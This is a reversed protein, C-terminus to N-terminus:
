LSAEATGKIGRQIKAVPGDSPHLRKKPRLGSKKKLRVENKEKSRCRADGLTAGVCLQLRRQVTKGLTGVILQESWTNQSNQGWCM